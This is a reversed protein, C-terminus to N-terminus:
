SNKEFMNWYLEDGYQTLIYYRDRNIGGRIIVEREELEQIKSRLNESELTMTSILKSESIGPTLKIAKILDAYKYFEDITQKLKVDLDCEAQFECLMDLIQSLKIYSFARKLDTEGDLKYRRYDVIHQFLIEFERSKVDNNDRILGIVAKSFNNLTTDLILIEKVVQEDIKECLKIFYEKM